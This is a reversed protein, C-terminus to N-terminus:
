FKDKIYLSPIFGKEVYWNNYYIMTEDLSPMCTGGDNVFVHTQTNWEFEKWSKQIELVIQQLTTTPTVSVIYENTSTYVRVNANTITSM